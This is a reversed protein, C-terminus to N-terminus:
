FSSSRLARWMRWQRRWQPPQISREFLGAGAVTARDLVTEALSVPLYAGIVPEKLRHRAANRAKQLHDKGFGSFAAIAASVRQKDEGALFTERDLGTAALIDLPLYLQGRHRHLPMLLLAGAVAHAVGAHGATEGLDRAADADLVLSAMQILTAATEGAYGEFAAVNDMPDDYLDFIRADILSVLPQRPLQWTEIAHLLGAALPNARAEGQRNGALLDRWWQYRVEGPLAERILDRVRAIEANFAYLAAIPGRRDENILLCSLYRDLDTQRLSQLCADYNSDHGASM